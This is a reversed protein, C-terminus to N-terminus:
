RFHLAAGVPSNKPDHDDKADWQATIIVQGKKIKEYADAPHEQLYQIQQAIFGTEMAFCREKDAPLHAKTYEPQLCFVVQHKRHKHVSLTGWGAHEFFESLTEISYVPYKRALNRGAWYLVPYEEAGLLEPIVVDRLLEYGFAPVYTDQWENMEPKANKKSM